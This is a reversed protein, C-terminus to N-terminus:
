RLDLGALLERGFELLQHSTLDVLEFGLVTLAEGLAVGLLDGLLVEKTLDHVRHALGPTEALLDLTYDADRHEGLAPVGVGHGM